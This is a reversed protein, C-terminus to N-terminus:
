QEKNLLSNAGIIIKNLYDSKVKVRKHIIKKALVMASITDGSELLMNMKDYLPLYRCPIMNSARDYYEIANQIMDIHRYNDAM